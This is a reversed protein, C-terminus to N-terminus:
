TVAMTADDTTVGEGAGEGVRNGGVGLGLGDGVTMGVGNGEGTGAMRGPTYTVSMRISGGGTRPGSRM